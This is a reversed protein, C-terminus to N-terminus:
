AAKEPQQRGAQRGERPQREGATITRGEGIRIQRARAEERKAFRIRLVGNEYTAEVNDPDVSPPLTLSRQFSGYQREIRRFDRGKEERELKREGRVNLVNGDVEITLDEQNVGPIEMEVTLSNEDEYVDVPPAFAPMAMASERAEGRDRWLERLLRNMRDQMSSLEAFPDWRALSM